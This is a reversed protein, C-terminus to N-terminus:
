HNLGLEQLDLQKSIEEYAVRFITKRHRGREQILEGQVFTKAALVEV